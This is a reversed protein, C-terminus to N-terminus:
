PRPAAEPNAILPHKPTLAALSEAFSETPALDETLEPDRIITLGHAPGADALFLEHAPLTVGAPAALALFPDVDAEIVEKPREIPQPRSYPQLKQARKMFEAWIPLASKAGEIQLDRNDDFGVWVVCLLRDTFGAFWGDDDTGTKGAAPAQFGTSRAGAATGRNLVDSMLDTVLYAVAPDLVQLQQPRQEILAPLTTGRVAHILRPEVRRGGNAFVTYAGAVELPTVEYAGLAASPTAQVAGMGAKRGLQAVRRYGVHRAVRVTATNVSNVLAQRLTVFGQPHHGYNSPEYLEDDWEITLPTDQVISLPTLRSGDPQQRSFATAFVFPKFLSGPQRSALARNLQTRDYDRGGVLAKVEGTRPDIAVLACQPRPAQQDRFRRQRAVIEDIRQMGERVTRVALEQLDPDLTTFIEGGNELRAALEPHAELEREVLAVFYPAQEANFDTAVVGLPKAKAETYEVGSIYGHAHMAELVVNRRAKAREPYRFPNLYSPRQLLGALLAAEELKLDAVDKAFYAQAAEGVGAIGNPGQRGMYILNCYLELIREKSLRREINRAIFFEKLKRSYTRERSLFFGRALQQTVTSTGRPMRWQLIGDWAAKMSRVVDIGSHEYFRHDEISVIAEILRAPIEEYRVLRRREGQGDALRTVAEADLLYSRLTNGEGDVIAKVRGAAFRVSVPGAGSISLPGPRIDVADSSASFSGVSSEHATGYGARELRRLLTAPNLQQGRVITRPAAMISPTPDFAHGRLRDEILSDYKGVQYELFAFGSLLVVLLAGAVYGAIRRARPTRLRALTPPLRGIWETNFKGRASLPNIRLWPPITRGSSPECEVPPAEIQLGRIASQDRTPPSQRSATEELAQINSSGVAVRPQTDSM